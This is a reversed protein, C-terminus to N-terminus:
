PLFDEGVDLNYARQWERVAEALDDFNPDTLPVYPNPKPLPIETKMRGDKDEWIHKSGERRNWEPKIQPDKRIPSGLPKFPDSDHLDDTTRM